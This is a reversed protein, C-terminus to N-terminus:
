NRKLTSLINDLYCLTFDDIFPALVKNVMREFSAPAITLGFPMFLWEFLGYKCM